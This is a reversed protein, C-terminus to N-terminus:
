EKQMGNQQEEFRTFAMTHAIAHATLFAADQTPEHLIM